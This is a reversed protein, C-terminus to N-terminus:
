NWGSALEPGVLVSFNKSSNTWVMALELFYVRGRAGAGGVAAGWFVLGAVPGKLGHRAEKDGGWISVKRGKEYM